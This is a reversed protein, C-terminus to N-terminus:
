ELTFDTMQYIVRGDVGLFGSATLSRRRDDCATVELIVTVERDSPLVQGRYVWSHPRNLAVTQWAPQPEGWRRWAVYKLLQLFSELGLSGPWVPDQYFHAQFFWFGPDVAIKGVVLGLGHRGGRPLFAEIRDIMRLRPGPFPPMDPLVGGEAGERESATPYPVTVDRLGVQNALAKKSFFGFYTTGEYVPGIADQVRMDFHQIIMGASQSVSTMRVRTTLTGSDSRVPRFQTAQGGLNRFSLDEPSTLASGCYAALWGCPQLATELLVAFPMLRCRNEDFYWATEPVDYEAVCSAGAKMEFPRGSVEVIRDLFQFPPGPLRAIVRDRDFVRYPEGFAESPNGNSFARISDSDYLVRRAPRQLRAQGAGSWLKELGERTLGTLRLSMDSIEVIPKDDAYMLAEAICFPEPGYGLERVTVEYTVTRTQATVQGRCKLRSQVGPVPECAVEDAEGVWGIRLLLIRLTHLCCEYMLTGPMVQDDVFHCTLFWDDPHIDFEARVFGLGYRGGNPELLPVRDVLRLMGGPLTHPRRLPLGAFEPGFAAVLDGARLAQVQERSLSCTQPSTLDRWDAPRKGPTPLRGLAPRVIGKGAALAEATFFGAVGNRMTIFPEGKVTGDFRFRFIWADGQRVFEDIAIDYVVTEGVRPLGRHFCVVADLLRYVALGRTQLDIGLFGALFLDAQGAEVALATPIRGSELYWRDARVTHETVVRGSSMSLPEGEILTVRDVLQLPGDPLRVRTPFTDIEAYRPGLVDGIKGAAFVCCQEYSLTRPVEGTPATLGVPATSTLATRGSPAASTLTASGAPAVSPLATPGVPPATPVPVAAEGSEGVESIEGAASAGGAITALLRTQFSILDAVTETYRRHIRLYTEHAQMALLRVGAAARITEGLAVLSDNHPVVWKGPAVDSGSRLRTSEGTAVFSEAYPAANEPCTVASGGPAHVAEPRPAPSRSPEVVSTERAGSGPAPEALPNDASPPVAPLDSPLVPGPQLRHDLAPSGTSARRSRPVQGVPVVLLKNTPAPSESPRHGVCLTEQGYITDLDVPLREAALHAVLRLVQSVADQKGAHAARALHPRSGLVADIMRVCSNGPGVEVFARVGDRYAAEVVGPFDITNLLGATISDACTSPSPKYARGWAGSYVALGPLPTVPLTHLERYAVEVPQGAECHALTVGSLYTVPQGITATLKEVDERIGGIVCEGPTNVILLYARLGPRMRATVDDAPAPIVGVVWDVTRGVPMNWFRRAADYPPALDSVFLSSRRVRRYMEDRDKWLRLGFLGASEGLSFGILADCRVGLSLLIDSVLCGVTVQGFLLERAPAAECSGDWFYEPAFQSRLLENEAQQRRMVEPWQASLDRGMGDFHNGSGPFVFALKVKPGLPRPSYFVRDRLSPRATPPFAQGPDAGLNDSAFRTQEALQEPSRAVLSVVLPRPSGPESTRHWERALAEINRSPNDAALSGLRKLGDLLETRSEGRVLFVAEDRAGLPQVRAAPATRERAAPHQHEELLIAYHSGDSGQAQVVARRPGDARDHLWYRPPPGPLVEQGLALLAKAVSAAASAAGCSGVNEAADFPVASAGGWGSEQYARALARDATNGTGVARIVAYVRDGDRQADDLRKLVFAAAGEGPRSVQGPLVVRPDCALDVGGVVVRDLERAQLARVGLSVAAAASAEESCVTHSPGGFRFARAIRSAAISGLAGITRNATLPPSIDDVDAAVGDAVGGAALVSWRRSFNMTNPDLALGVFVGTTPFEGTGGDQQGAARSDELADAAVQLMLLQQPLTEELEKPPVRYRDIPLRLEEIGFAPPSSLGVAAWGNVKPAATAPKGCLVHEQFARSDSWPGFHVALGVVAVPVTSGVSEPVAEPETKPVPNSTSATFASPGAPTTPSSAAPITKRQTTVLRLSETGRSRRVPLGTWEEVLLHANVGGFGFGSVAARRPEFPSRRDWREPRPLIRFPGGHYSLGQAPASFNAQPPLTEHRLALLVKILGAAGAGTLLHGVTSKVSGIVCQGPVWGSAGWLERLSEFEVADGVPTGTAHCEILDIDNPSWGAREYARRMARLQGERAPALLNGHMDNSLGIGALVALITDGQRLADALRKLVFVGAGEGVLLGDAAADFPSCRGSVSLARLQAFGMQTYLCDPRSCGGALMADARGALLEDAALKIAYLSSACAADLTYSGGGLGLARALLGAPLGAVFRNLPHTRSARGKADGPALSRTTLLERSLASSADTPLCINGLVVGVRARDIADTRAARWARNGVDLVLHFLPDLEAVLRPELEMGTLDPQFPDLFYGRATYVRDACAVRPDTCRDPPLVWRGPPVDRSCDAASVINGWFRDLDPGCGPFRGAASVIAIRDKTM